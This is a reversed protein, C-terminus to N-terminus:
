LFNCTVLQFTNWCSNLNPSSLNLWTFSPFYIKFSSIDNWSYPLFVFFFFFKKRFLLIKDVSGDLHYPITIHLLVSSIIEVFWHWDNHKWKTKFFNKSILHNMEHKEKTYLRVNDCCMVAKPGSKYYIQEGVLKLHIRDSDMLSWVNFEM